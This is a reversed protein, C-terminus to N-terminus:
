ESRLRKRRPALSRRKRSSTRASFLNEQVMRRRSRASVLKKVAFIMSEIASKEEMMALILSRRAFRMRFFYCLGSASKRAKSDQESDLVRGFVGGSAWSRLNSLVGM